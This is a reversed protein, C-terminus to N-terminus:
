LRRGDWLWALGGSLALYPPSMNARTTICGSTSDLRHIDTIYHNQSHRYYLPEYTQRKELVRGGIYTYSRVAGVRTPNNNNINAM